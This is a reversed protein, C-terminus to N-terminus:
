WKRWQQLRSLGIHPSPDRGPVSARPEREAPSVPLVRRNSGEGRRGERKGKEEGVTGGEELVVCLRQMSSHGLKGLSVLLSAMELLLVGVLAPGGEGEM